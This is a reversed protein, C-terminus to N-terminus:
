CLWLAARGGHTGEGGADRDEPARSGPEPLPGAQLPLLLVLVVELVLKVEGLRRGGVVGSWTLWGAVSPPVAPPAPPGGGDQAPGASTCAPHSRRTHSHGPFRGRSAVHAPRPM